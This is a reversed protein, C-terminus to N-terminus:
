FTENLNFYIGISGNAGFGCDVTLNSLTKRSFMVRLGLGAAPDIYEFLRRAGDDSSATTANLFLVGGLIGTYRSIPFRYESEAYLFNIGRISGQVYGRGTRNFMDWGIAPLGLYPVKGKQTFQGIYWFGILHEQRRKSLSLYARFETNLMLSNMSSGLFKFNPRFAINAFVGKVPRISNDRSDLLLEISLGSITQHGPNFSNDTSYKYHSTIQPPVTDLDLKHDVIRSYNDLCYGIGAYLKRTIRFYFTEYLRIYDYNLPQTKGSFPDTQGGEGFIIDGEDAHKIGSGLGYTPQSFILFRWDGRLIFRSESTIAITRLNIIKQSKATFNVVVSASSIPTTEPNGLFMGISSGVGILMGYAPNYGVFPTIALYPKYLVMPEASASDRKAANKERTFISWVDDQKFSKGPSQAQIVATAMLLACAICFTRLLKFLPM